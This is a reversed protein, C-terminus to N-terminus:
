TKSRSWYNRPYINYPAKLSCHIGSIDRLEVLLFLWKSPRCFTVDNTHYGVTTISLRPSNLCTYVNPAGQILAGWVGPRSRDSYWPLLQRPWQIQIEKSNLNALTTTSNV